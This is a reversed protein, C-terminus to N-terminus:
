GIPMTAHQVGYMKIEEMILEMLIQLPNIWIDIENVLDTLRTNNGYGNLIYDVLRLSLIYGALEDGHMSSTYLFSPENEKQGVNDSIQLILIERGSNLTGLHHLKCIAPFSDAFAQMMNTYETYTPYYDWNNKSNNIYNLPKKEILQYRIGQQLFKTFESKNAYAYAM